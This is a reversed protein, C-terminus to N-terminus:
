VHETGEGGAGEFPIKSLERDMKEIVKSDTKLLELVQRLSVTEIFAGVKKSTATYIVYQVPFKRKIMKATEQNSFLVRCSNMTSFCKAYRDNYAACERISRYRGDALEELWELSDKVWNGVRSCFLPGVAGASEGVSFGHLSYGYIHAEYDVFNEQMATILKTTDTIPVIWDNRASALFCPCTESNVLECADPADPACFALTERSTLGYCIVAAFPKKKAASAAVSVVHGGASFGVAAVHKEDIHYEKAHEAMYEMAADFDELPYPWKYHKGVSYQLIFANYGLQNFRQAVPLSESEDCNTYGGGPCLLFTVKREETVIYPTLRVNRDKNLIIAKGM